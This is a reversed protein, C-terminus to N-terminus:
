DCIDLKQHFEQNSVQKKSKVFTQPTSMNRLRSLYVQYIISVVSSPWHSHVVVHYFELTITCTEDILYVFM